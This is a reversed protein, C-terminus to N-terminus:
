LLQLKLYLPVLARFYQTFWCLNLCNCLHMIIIEYVIKQKRQLNYWQCHIDLLSPSNTCAEIAISTARFVVAECPFVLIM